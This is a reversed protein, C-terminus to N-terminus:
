PEFGPAGAVAVEDFPEAVDTPAAVGRLTAETTMLGISGDWTVTPM